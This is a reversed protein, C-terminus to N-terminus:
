LVLVHVLLLQQVPVHVRLQAIGSAQAFPEQGIPAESPPGDLDPAVVQLLLLELDLPLVVGLPLLDGPPDVEHEFSLVSPDELPLNLLCLLVALHGLDEDLVVVDDVLLHVLGLALQDLQRGGFLHVPDHEEHEVEGELDRLWPVGDPEVLQVGGLLVVGLPVQDRLQDM